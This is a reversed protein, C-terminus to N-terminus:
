TTGSDYKEVFSISPEELVGGSVMADKLEQSEAFKHANEFSDFEFIMHIDNPDNENHFIQYSTEGGAKRVAHFSDFLKRWEKYDKVRHRAWVYPM